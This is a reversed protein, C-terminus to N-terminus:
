FRPKFASSPSTIHIHLLAPICSRPFSSNASFVLRGAADDHVIGVHTPSVAVYTPHSYYPVACSIDVVWLVLWAVMCIRQIWINPALNHWRLLVLADTDDSQIVLTLYGKQLAHLIHLILRTDAEEQQSYLVSIDENSSQLGDGEPLGGVIFDIGPYAQAHIIHQEALFVILNSKNESNNIFLGWKPPLHTNRDRVNHRISGDKLQSSRRSRTTYKITPKNVYMDELPRVYMTLMNSQKIQQSKWLHNTHRKINFNEKLFEEYVAPFDNELNEMDQSNACGLPLAERKHYCFRNNRLSNWERGLLRSPRFWCVAGWSCYTYRNPTSAVYYRFSMRPRMNSSILAMNANPSTFYKSPPFGYGLSFCEASTRCIVHWLKQMHPLEAYNCEKNLRRSVTKCKTNYDVRQADEHELMTSRLYRFPQPRPTGARELVIFPPVYDSLWSPFPCRRTVPKRAPIRPNEDHGPMPHPGALSPRQLALTASDPTGRSAGDALPMAWCSECMRSHPLSGAPYRARTATIPPSRGLWYVCLGIKTQEEAQSHPPWGTLINVGTVEAGVICRLATGLLEFLRSPIRIFAPPRPPQSTLKSAERRHSGPEIGSRTAGPCHRQDSSKRPYRGHRGDKCGPAAGIEGLDGEDARLVESNLAVWIKETVRKHTCRGRVDESLVMPEVKCLRTAAGGEGRWQKGPRSHRRPALYRSARTPPYTQSAARTTESDTADVGGSHEAVRKFAIRCSDSTLVTQATVFINLLNDASGLHGAQYLSSAIIRTSILLWSAKVLDDTAASIYTVCVIFDITSDPINKFLDIAISSRTSNSSRVAVHNCVDCATTQRSSDIGNIGDCSRGRMARCDAERVGYDAGCVGSDSVCAGYDAARERVAGCLRGFNSFHYHLNDKAFIVQACKTLPERYAIQLVVTNSFVALEVSDMHLQYPKDIYTAAALLRADSHSECSPRHSPKLRVLLDQTHVPLVLRSIIIRMAVDSIEVVDSLMHLSPNPAIAYSFYLISFNQANPDPITTRLQEYETIETWLCGNKRLPSSPRFGVLNWTIFDGFGWTSGLHGQGMLNVKYGYSQIVKEHSVEDASYELDNDDISVGHDDEGGSKDEIDLKSEKTHTACDYNESQVLGRLDKVGNYYYVAGDHDDTSDSCMSAAPLISSMVQQIEFSSNKCNKMRNSSDTGCESCMVVLVVHVVILVVMLVGILVVCAVILVARLMGFVVFCRYHGMIVGLLGDHRM